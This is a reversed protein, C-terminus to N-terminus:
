GRIKRVLRRLGDVVVAGLVVVAMSFIWAQEVALRWEFYSDM